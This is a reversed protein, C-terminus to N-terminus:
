SDEKQKTTAEYQKWGKLFDVYEKQKDFSLEGMCYPLTKERRIVLGKLKKGKAYVWRVLQDCAEVHKGQKILSIMTSKQIMTPGNNFTMDTAAARQWKSAFKDEGGVMKDTEQEHKKWDQAFLTMCEEETYSAKVRAKKTVLHGVCYTKLGIPDSYPSLVLGESVFTLDYAVFAASSTLGAAFFAAILKQKLSKM